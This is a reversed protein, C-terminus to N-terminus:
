KPCLQQTYVRKGAQPNSVDTKVSQSLAPRQNQQQRGTSFTLSQLLLLLLLAQHPKIEPSPREASRASDAIDGLVGM